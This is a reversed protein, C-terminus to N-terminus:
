DCPAFSVPGAVSPSSADFRGTLHPPPRSAKAGHEVVQRENKQDDEREGDEEVVDVSEV